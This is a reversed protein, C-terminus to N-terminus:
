SMLEEDTPNKRPLNQKYNLFTSISPFFRETKIICDVTIKFEIATFEPFLYDYYLEMQEKTTKYNFATILEEINKNFVEKTLNEM